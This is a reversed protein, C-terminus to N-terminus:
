VPRLPRISGRTIMKPEQLSSSSEQRVARHGRDKRTVIEIWPYQRAYEALIRPTEDTSGDDVIVWKAPRISQAIVTELTQRIYAAENRGPSILVYRDGIRM